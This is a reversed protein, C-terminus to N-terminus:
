EVPQKGPQRDGFHRLILFVSLLALIIGIGSLRFVIASLSGYAGSFDMMAQDSTAVADVISRHMKETYASGVHRSLKTDLQSATAGSSVM